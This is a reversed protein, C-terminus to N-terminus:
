RRFPLWSYGVSGYIGVEDTTGWIGSGFYIGNDLSYSAGVYPFMGGSYQIGADVSIKEFWKTVFMYPNVAAVDIEIGVNSESSTVSANWRKKKDQSLTLLLRLSRNQKVNIYAEAPDTLTYGGVGIYGFDKEFSVKTRKGSDPDEPDKPVETKKAKVLAKYNKKWKATTRTLSLIAEDKKALEKELSRISHIRDGSEKAIEVLLDRNNSIVLAQKRYVGEKVEITEAQTAIENYLKTVEKKHSTDKYYMVVGMVMIVIVLITMVFKKLKNLMKKMM